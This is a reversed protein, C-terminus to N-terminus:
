SLIDYFNQPGDGSNTFVSGSIKKIVNMINDYFIKDNFKIPVLNRKIGDIATYTNIEYDNNDIFYFGKIKTDKYFGLPLNIDMIQVVSNVNLNFNIGNHIYDNDYGTIINFKGNLTNKKIKFNDHTIKIMLKDYYLVEDYLTIIHNLLIPLNFVDEYNHQMILWAFEKKPEIKYAQYLTLVDEGCLVDNRVINFYREATKLKLNEIEIKSRVQKMWNYLDIKIFYNIDLNINHKKLKSDIFPIDFSNGNYTIIYKKNKIIEKLYKLSQPEDVKYECYIQHIKYSGEEYLLVTISIIDSYERSLGTTEIDIFFSKQLLDNLHKNDTINQINKIDTIM